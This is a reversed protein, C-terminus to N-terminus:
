AQGAFEAEKGRKLSARSKSDFFSWWAVQEDADLTKKIEEYRHYMAVEDPLLGLVELALGKLFEQEEPDHTELAAKAVSKSSQKVDELPKSSDLADHEVIELASVWLYRRQYTEVAGINQVEHCGKLQASGMPSTITMCSEPKDVCRITMSAMSADFSVNAILGHRDFIQLAPVLFDGLEFYNYGAFKNHGTKKLKTSHFELRAANLRQYVNRNDKLGEIKEPANM